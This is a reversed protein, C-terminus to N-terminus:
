LTEAVQDTIPTDEPSGHSPKSSDPPSQRDSKKQFEDVSRMDIAKVLTGAVFSADFMDVGAQFLAFIEPRGIRYNVQLFTLAIQAMTEDNMDSGGMFGDIVQGALDWLHEDQKRRRTVFEGQEDYGFVTPLSYQNYNSRIIPIHWVGGRIDEQLYGPHIVDKQFDEPQPLDNPDYGIEIDRFKHWTFEERYTVFPPDTEGAPRPYLVTGLVGEANECTHKITKDPWKEWGDFTAELGFSALRDTDVRGQKEKVVEPDPVYYFFATM